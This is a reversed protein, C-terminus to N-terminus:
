EKINLSNIAWHLMNQRTKHGHTPDSPDGTKKLTASHRGKFSSWRKIQKEDNEGRRGYYFNIYWNVWGYPDEDDIWDKKIWEDYESGCFVRWRNIQIIYAGIRLLPNIEFEEFEDIFEKPVHSHWRKPIDPQFYNGGFIGERFMEVPTFDPKFEPYEDSWEKIKGKNVSM